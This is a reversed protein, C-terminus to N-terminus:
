AGKPTLRIYIPNGILRRAGDPGIVELRLWTADGRLQLGELLMVGDPAVPMDIAGIGGASKLRAGPGAGAVSVRLDLVAGPKMELEGGMAASRGAPSSAVYDLRADRNGTLDLFVRGSRIGALIASTGLSEALVVTAPRGVRPAGPDTRTPDHTDSGAIGTIRWGEDLLRNWLALGSVPGDMGLAPVGGSIVELAPIRSWDTAASWGCGMCFEGSPLGPHNPAVLAGAADAADLLSRLGTADGRGLRFDLPAWTGYVNAHGEFTTVERAPLVLLDDFHDSLEAIAGAQSTTNHDSIAIFDLGAARAAQLTLFAPCPAPRGTVSPCRGDSHATHLHLDGRYWGPGARIPADFAPDPGSGTRHLWIRVTYRAVAEPRVNPIGLIVRWRGPPLPGALYGPTAGSEGIEFGTRAGGSWGRFRSPDRVGLDLVIKSGAGDHALEVRVRDVGAPVRFPLERFTQHDPRRIEGRLM